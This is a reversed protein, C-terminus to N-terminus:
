YRLLMCSFELRTGPSRKGKKTEGQALAALLVERADKDPNPEAAMDALHDFEDLPVNLIEAIIKQKEELARAVEEDKRRLKESFM